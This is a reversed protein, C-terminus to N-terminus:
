RSRITRLKLEDLSKFESHGVLHFPLGGSEEM